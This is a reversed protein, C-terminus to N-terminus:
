TFIFQKDLSPLLNVIESEIEQPPLKVKFVLLNITSETVPLVITLPENYDNPM